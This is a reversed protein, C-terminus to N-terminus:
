CPPHWKCRYNLQVQIKDLQSILYGEISKVSM